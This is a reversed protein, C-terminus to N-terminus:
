IRCLLSICIIYWAHFPTIYLFAITNHFMSLFLDYEQTLRVKRLGPNQFILRSSLDHHILRRQWKEKLEYGPGQELCILDVDDVELLVDQGEYHGALFAKKKFLRGSPMCIRPKRVETGALM